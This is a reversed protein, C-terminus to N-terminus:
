ELVLVPCREALPYGHSEIFRPEAFVARAEARLAAATPYAASYAATKLADVLDIEDMGWGTMAALAARDPFLADFARAFDALPLVANEERAALAM